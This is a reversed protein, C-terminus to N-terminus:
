QRYIAKHTINTLVNVVHVGNLTHVLAVFM